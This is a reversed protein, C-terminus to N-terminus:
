NVILMLGGYEFVIKMLRDTTSNKIPSGAIGIIQAQM